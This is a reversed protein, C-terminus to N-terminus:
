IKMTVGPDFRADKVVAGTQDVVSVVITATNPTQAAATMFVLLLLPLSLFSKLKM